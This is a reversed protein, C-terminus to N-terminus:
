TGREVKFVVTSTPDVLAIWYGMGQTLSTLDNAGPVNAASPFYAYYTQTAADFGWVVAVEATIDSGCGDAGGALADAVSMGDQGSWAVLTWLGSLTISDTTGCATTPTSPGTPFVVVPAGPQPQPVVTVTGNSSGTGGAAVVIITCQQPANLAPVGILMVNDSIVTFPVSVGCVTVSSAGSFGGGQVLWAQGNNPYVTTVSVLTPQALHAVADTTASSSLFDLDSGDYNYIATLSHPAVTAPNIAAECLAHGSEDLPVTCLLTSGNFFSVTGRYVGVLGVNPNFSLISPPNITVIATIAVTPVPAWNYYAASATTTTSAATIVQTLSATPSQNYDGDGNPYYTANITHNGVHLAELEDYDYMTCTVTNAGSLDVESDSNEQCDVGEGNDGDITFAVYGDTPNITAPSNATVTATIVFPQGYVSPNPSSSLAVTTYAAIISQTIPDSTSGAFGGGGSYIARIEYSSGAHASAVSPPTCAASGGSLAVGQCSAIPVWTGGSNRSFQFDVTGENTPNSPSATVTATFTLPEGYFSTYNPYTGSSSSTVTTGTPINVMQDLPDSTSDVFGPTDFNDGLYNATISHSGAALNSITCTAIRMGSVTQLPVSNCQNGPLAHNTGGDYFNVYGVPSTSDAATVTATFTLSDGVSSPNTGSTLALTTATAPAREIGFEGVAFGDPDGSAGTTDYTVTVTNLFAGGTASFAFRTAGDPSTVDSSASVAGSNVSVTVPYTGSNNSLTYLYFAVTNSPLTITLSSVGHGSYYVDGGTDTNGVPGWNSWDTGVIRHNVSSGFTINGAPSVPVAVTTTDAGDANVVDAGFPKVNYQGVQSPPAGTGTGNSQVTAAAGSTGAGALAAALLAATGVVAALARPFRTFM